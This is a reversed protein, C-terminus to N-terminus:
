LGMSFAFNRSPRGTCSVVSGDLQTRTLQRPNGVFVTDVARGILNGGQRAEISMWPTASLQVAGNQWRVIDNLSLACTGHSTQPDSNIPLVHCKSSCLRIVSKIYEDGGCVVVLSSKSLAAVAHESRAFIESAEIIAPEDLASLVLRCTELQRLHSSWAREFRPDNNAFLASAESYTTDLSRGEKKLRVEILTPKRTFVVQGHFAEQQLIFSRLADFTM